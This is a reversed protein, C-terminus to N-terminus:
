ADWRKQNSEIRYRRCKKRNKKLWTDLSFSMIDFHKEM